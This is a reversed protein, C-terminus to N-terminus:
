DKPWMFADANSPTIGFLNLMEHPESAGPVETAVGRAIVGCFGAGCISAIFALLLINM